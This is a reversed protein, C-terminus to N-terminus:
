TEDGTEEGVPQELIDTDAAEEPEVGPPSVEDPVPGSKEQLQRVWLAVRWRDEAGIQSGHSPMNGQGYTIIHFIRGDTIQRANPALLSAPTPFGRQAVTGDGIGSAGHCIQCYTTYVLEGRTVAEVEETSFPNRLEQGARQAEEPTTGYHLPLSGRPITGAPPVQLTVGGPLVSNATFSEAAVSTVMGPMVDYNRQTPDLELSWNLAFVGLVVVLLVGNLKAGSSM